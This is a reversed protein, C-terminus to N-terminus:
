CIIAGQEETASPSGRSKDVHAGLVRHSPRSPETGANCPPENEVLILFFCLFNESRTIRIVETGM